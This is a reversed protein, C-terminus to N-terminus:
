AIVNIVIALHHFLGDPNFLPYNFHISLKFTWKFFISVCIVYKITWLLM